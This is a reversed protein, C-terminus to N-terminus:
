GAAEDLAVVEGNRGGVVVLGAGFGPGGTVGAEITHTRWFKWRSDESKVVVANSEWLKKGTAADIALVNGHQGLLYLRNGDLAPRLRTWSRNEEEGAGSSWIRQVAIPNALATLPAPDTAKPKGGGFWGRVTHMTSCGSAFALVVSILLVRRLM